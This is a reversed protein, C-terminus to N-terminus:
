VRRFTPFMAATAVGTNASAVPLQAEASLIDPRQRVLESPLSVPLDVPLTLSDLPVDPPAAADSPALGQLLALLHAAQSAKQRLSALLAENSAILGRQTLLNAYPLTGAHM